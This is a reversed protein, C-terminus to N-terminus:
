HANLKWRVSFVSWTWWLCLVSFTLALKQISDAAM